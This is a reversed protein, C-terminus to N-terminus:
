DPFSLLPNSMTGSGGPYLSGSLYKSELKWPLSMLNDPLPWSSLPMAEQQTGQSWESDDQANKMRRASIYPPPHLHLNGHSLAAGLGAICMLNPPLVHAQGPLQALIAPHSPESFACTEYDLFSPLHRSRRPTLSSVSLDCLLTNLVCAQLKKSATHDPCIM